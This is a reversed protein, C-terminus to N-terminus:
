NNAKTTLDTPDYSVTVKGENTVDITASITKDDSEWNKSKLKTQAWNNGAFETLVSDLASVGNTNPTVTTGNQTITIKYTNAAITSDSAATKVVTVM